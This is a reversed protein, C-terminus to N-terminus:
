HQRSALALFAICILTLIGYVIWREISMLPHSSHVIILLVPWTFISILINRFYNWRLKWRIVKRIGLGKVPLLLQSAFALPFISIFNLPSPYEFWFPVLCYTAWITAALFSVNVGLVLSHLNKSTQMSLDEKLQALNELFFFERSDQM